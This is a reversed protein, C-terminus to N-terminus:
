FVAVRGHRARAGVVATHRRVRARLARCRDAAIFRGFIYHSGKAASPSSQEASQRGADPRSERGTVARDRRWRRTANRQAAPARSSCAQRRRARGDGGANRAGRLQSKDEGAGLPAGPDAPETSPAAGMPVITCASSRWAPRPAQRGSARSDGTAAPSPTSGRPSRM